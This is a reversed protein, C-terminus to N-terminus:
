ICEEEGGMCALHGAWSKNRLRIMKFISPLSYLNHLKENQLERWGGTV